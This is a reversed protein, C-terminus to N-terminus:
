RGIRKEKGALLNRINSRHRYILLASMALMAIVFPPPMLWWVYLPAVVAATLASLSSYRFLAAMVLWTGVLLLGVWPNLAAWVGLATAVGKGGHFGHYVPFLHGLFAAGATAALIVADGTLARAILVPIVGKLVDGLLTLAAALKGGYRLVNTAGPNKSGVLRPDELGMLRTVVIASSVSGILYAFLPLLYLM